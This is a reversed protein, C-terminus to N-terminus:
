PAGSRQNGVLECSAKYADDSANQGLASGPDDNFSLLGSVPALLNKAFEEVVAVAVYRHQWWNAPGVTEEALVVSVRMPEGLIRSALRAVRGSHYWSTVLLVSRSGLARMASRIRTMEGFTGGGGPNQDLRIRECPVGRKILVYAVQQQPTLLDVGAEHLAPAGDDNLASSVYITRSLGQRFLEAATLSRRFEWEDGRVVVILDAPRSADAHVLASGLATLLPFRFVAASLAGLLVCASLSGILRRSRM